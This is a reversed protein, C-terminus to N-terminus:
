AGSATFTGSYFPAGCAGKTYDTTGDQYTVTGSLIATRKGSADIVTLVLTDTGPHGGYATNTTLHLTHATKSDAQCTTQFTPTRGDVDSCVLRDQQPDAAAPPGVSSTDCLTGICLELTSTGAVFDAPLQADFHM